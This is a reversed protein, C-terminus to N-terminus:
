ICQLCDDFYDSCHLINDQDNRDKLPSRCIFSNSKVLSDSIYKNEYNSLVGTLKEKRYM